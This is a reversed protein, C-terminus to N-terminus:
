FLVEDEDDVAPAVNESNQEDLDLATLLWDPPEPLDTETTYSDSDSTRHELNETQLLSSLTVADGLNEPQASGPTIALLALVALAAVTTAVALTRGRATRHRLTAVSVPHISVPPAPAPIHRLTQLLEVTGALQLCLQEDHLLLQELHDQQDPSLEGLACRALLWSLDSPTTTNNQMDIGSTM